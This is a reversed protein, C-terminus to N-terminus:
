NYIDKESITFFVEYNSERTKKPDDFKVGYKEVCYDSILKRYLSIENHSLSIGTLDDLCIRDGFKKKLEQKEFVVDIKKILM